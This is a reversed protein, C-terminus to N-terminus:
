KYTSITRIMEIVEEDILGYPSENLRKLRADIADWQFFEITALGKKSCRDKDFTTRTDDDFM